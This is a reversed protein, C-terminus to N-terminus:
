SDTSRWPAWMVASRLSRQGNPSPSTPPVGEPLAASTSGDCTCKLRHLQSETVIPQPLPIEWVQHRRPEPDTGQLREGCRRCSTPRLLVFADCEASPRLTREQKPHGFQGGRQRGSKTKAVVPKDHPHQTSPPLSSNQPTRKLAAVQSEIDAIRATMTEIRAMADALKEMLARIIGEAETAQRAVVEDTILELLM